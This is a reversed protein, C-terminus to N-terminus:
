DHLNIQVIKIQKLNKKTAEYQSQTKIIANRKVRYKQIM